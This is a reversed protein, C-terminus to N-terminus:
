GGRGLDVVSLLGDRLLYATGIWYRYYDDCMGLLLLVQKSACRHQSSVRSCASRHREGAHYYVIAVRSAPFNIHDM